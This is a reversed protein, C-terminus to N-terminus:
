SRTSFKLQGELIRACLRYYDIWKSGSWSKPDGSYLSKAYDTMRKQLAVFLNKSAVTNFQRGHAIGAVLATNYLGQFHKGYQPYTISNIPKKEVFGHSEIWQASRGDAALVIGRTLGEKVYKKQLERIASETPAGVLVFQQATLIPIMLIPGGLPLGRGLIGLGIEIMQMTDFMKNFTDVVPDSYGSFEKAMPSDITKRGEIVHGDGNIVRTDTKNIPLYIIGPSASTSFMWNNHDDTAVNCGVYKRLYWNVEDPDNTRFNHWILYRVDVGHKQAVGKWGDKMDHDKVPYPISGPPPWDRRPQQPEKETRLRAGPRMRIPM